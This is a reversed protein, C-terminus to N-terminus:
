ESRVLAAAVDIAERLAEEIRNEERKLRVRLFRAEDSEPDLSALESSAALGPFRPILENSDQDFPGSRSYYVSNLARSI